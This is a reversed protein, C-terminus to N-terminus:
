KILVALNQLGKVISTKPIKLEKLYLPLGGIIAIDPKQAVIWNLANSSIPGGVDPAHVLRKDGHEICLMILWGLATGEEGHAVPPSFRLRTKSFVFERGDAVEVKSASSEAYKNFTWGRKRQSLNVRWRTDKVLVLKGRYIAEAEDINSWTLVYDRERWFPTYHDYHYHSVTIVDSVSAKRKIRERAAQLSRYENPHPPLGFRLGLSVGADILVRVDPTEVYTCTGRVGLTEFALCEIFM